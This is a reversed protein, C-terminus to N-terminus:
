GLTLGLRSGGHIGYLWNLEKYVLLVFPVHPTKILRFAM